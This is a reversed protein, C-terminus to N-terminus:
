RVVHQRHLYSLRQPQDGVYVGNVCEHANMGLLAHFGGCPEIAAGILVVTGVGAVGGVAAAGAASAPLAAIAASSGFWGEYLGVGAVTGVAVGGAVPAVAYASGYNSNVNGPEAFAPPAITTMAAISLISLIPLIKRMM